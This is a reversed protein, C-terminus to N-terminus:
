KYTVPPPILTTPQRREGKRRDGRRREMIGAAKLLSPNSTRILLDIRNDAGTKRMLRGVHAQVTREEIGLDHAIERNSHALLIMELVQRERNTLHHQANTFSM